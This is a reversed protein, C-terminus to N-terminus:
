TKLSLEIKLMEKGHSFSGTNSSRTDAGQAHVAPVHCHNQQYLIDRSHHLAMTLGPKEQLPCSLFCKLSQQAAPKQQFYEVRGDKVGCCGLRSGWLQCQVTSREKAAPRCPPRPRPSVPFHNLPSLSPLTCRLLCLASRVAASRPDSGPEPSEAVM